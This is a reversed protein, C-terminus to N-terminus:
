NVLVASISIQPFFFPKCSFHNPDLRYQGSINESQAAGIVGRVDSRQTVPDSVLWWVM